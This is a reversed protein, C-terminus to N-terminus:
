YWRKQIKVSWSHDPRGTPEFTLDFVYGGSINKPKALFDYPAFREGAHPGILPRMAGGAPAVDFTHDITTMLDNDESAIERHVYVWPISGQARALPSLLLLVTLALFNKM